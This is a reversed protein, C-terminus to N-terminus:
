AYFSQIVTDYCGKAQLIADAIERVAGNGGQYQCVWDASDKVAQYANAVAIGLGCSQIAALDPLDDGAYATEEMNIGISDLLETLAQLKDDRGQIIHEIGLEAARHSVIDSSRGTIIATEVNNQQLMKIGLGDLICFRKISEGNSGFYLKGNTLVGDVDLALLKINKAKESLKPPLLSATM